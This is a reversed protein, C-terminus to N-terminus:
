HALAILNRALGSPFSTIEVCLVFHEDLIVRYRETTGLGLIGTLNEKPLVVAVDPPDTPRMHRVSTKLYLLEQQSVVVQEAVLLETQHNVQIFASLGDATDVDEIIIAEIAARSQADEDVFCKALLAIGLSSQSQADLVKEVVNHQM